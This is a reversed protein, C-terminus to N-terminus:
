TEELAMAYVEGFTFDFDFGLGDSRSAVWYWDSGVGALPRRMAKSEQFVSQTSWSLINIFAGGSSDYQQTQIVPDSQGILIWDQGPAVVPVQDAGPTAGEPVRRVGWTLAHNWDDPILPQQAAYQLRVHVNILLRIHTGFPGQTYLFKRLFGGTLVQIGGGVRHWDLAM